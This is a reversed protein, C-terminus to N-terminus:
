QSNKFWLKIQLVEGKTFPPNLPIKLKSGSEAGGGAFILVYFKKNFLYFYSYM